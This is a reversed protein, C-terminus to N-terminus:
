KVGRRMERCRLWFVLAVAWGVISVLDEVYPVIWHRRVAAGYLVVVFAILMAGWSSLRATRPPPLSLRRLLEEQVRKLDRVKVWNMFAWVWGILTLAHRFAHRAIIRLMGM